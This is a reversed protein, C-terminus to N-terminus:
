LLIFRNQAAHNIYVNFHFTIICHNDNFLRLLLCFESALECRNPLEPTTQRFGCVPLWSKTTNWSNKLPVIKSSSIM